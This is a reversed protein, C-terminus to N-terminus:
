RKKKKKKGAGATAATTTTGKKKKGKAAAAGAGKTKKPAAKKKGAAAKKQPSVIAALPNGADAVATAMSTDMEHVGLKHDEGWERLAELIVPKEAALQFPSIRRSNRKTPDAGHALLIRVIPAHDHFVAM